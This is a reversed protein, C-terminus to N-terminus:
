NKLQFQHDRRGSVIMVDNINVELTLFIHFLCYLLNIFSSISSMHKIGFSDFHHFINVTPVYESPFKNTTYSILLCTKGVAGDGVVVCKITQMRTLPKEWLVPDFKPTLFQPYVQLTDCIQLTNAFAIIWWFWIKPMKKIFPSQQWLGQNMWTFERTITTGYQGQSNQWTKFVLSTMHIINSLMISIYM